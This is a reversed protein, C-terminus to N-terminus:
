WALVKRDRFFKGTPIDATSSLWVATDAGQKVTRPANKGGMDTSVWGPCMSNVKINTGSLDHALIATFANLATKSIRYGAHGSGMESLSGMGSSFNIIRGQTSKKLLPLLTQTLQMPGFLNTEMVTRVENINAQDFGGSASMIGANNILVDLRGYTENIFVRTAEFSAPSTMDLHTFLVNDPLSQIAAKGKAKDRAALIVIHNQEALQRCIEFGIGRNGGTVLITKQM